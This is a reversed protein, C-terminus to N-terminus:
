NLVPTKEEPTPETVGSRTTLLMVDPLPVAPAALTAGVDSCSLRFLVVKFVVSVRLRLPPQTYSAFPELSM